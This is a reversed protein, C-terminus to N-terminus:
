LTYPWIVIFNSVFCFDLVLERFILNGYILGLFDMFLGWFSAKMMWKILYNKQFKGRRKRTGQKGKPIVSKKLVPRTQKTNKLEWYGLKKFPNVPLRFSCSLLTSGKKNLLFAKKNGLWNIFFISTIQNRPIRTM